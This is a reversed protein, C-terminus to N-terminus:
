SKNGAPTVTGAAEPVLSCDRPAAQRLCHAGPTPPTCAPSGSGWCLARVGYLGSRKTSHFLSCPPVTTPFALPPPISAAVGSPACGWLLRRPAPHGESPHCPRPRAGPVSGCHGRSDLPAFPLGFLLLLSGAWCGRQLVTGLRPPGPSRREQSCRVRSSRLRLRPLALAPSRSCVCILSRESAM